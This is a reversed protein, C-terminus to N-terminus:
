EVRMLLAVCGADGSCESLLRYKGHPIGRMVAACEGSISAIPVQTQIDIIDGVQKRVSSPEFAAVISGVPADMDPSASGNFWPAHFASAEIEAFKKKGLITQEEGETWDNEKHTTVTRSKLADLESILAYVTSSPTVVANVDIDYGIAFVVDFSQVSSGIEPIYFDTDSSLVAIARENSPSDELYGILILSRWTGGSGSISNSFSARVNIGPHGSITESTVDTTAHIATIADLTKAEGETYSVQSPECKTIHLKNGVGASALMSAGANTVTHVVFM